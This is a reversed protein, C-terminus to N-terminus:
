LQLLRYVWMNEERTQESNKKKKHAKSTAKKGINFDNGEEGQGTYDDHNCSCRSTPAILEVVHLLTM